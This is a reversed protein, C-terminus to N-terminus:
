VIRVLRTFSVLESPSGLLLLRCNPFFIDVFMSVHRYYDGLDQPIDRSLIKHYDYHNRNILTVNCSILILMKYGLLKM